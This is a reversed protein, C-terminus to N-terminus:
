DRYWRHWCTFHWRVVSHLILILWNLIKVDVKWLGAPICPMHTCNCLVVTCYTVTQLILILDQASWAPVLSLLAKSSLCSPRSSLPESAMVWHCTIDLWWWQWWSTMSLSVIIFTVAYHDSLSWWLSLSGTLSLHNHQQSSNDLKTRGATHDVGKQRYLLLLLLTSHHLLM